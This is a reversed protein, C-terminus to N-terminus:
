YYTCCLVMVGEATPISFVFPSGWCGSFFHEFLLHPLGLYGTCYLIISSYPYLMSMEAWPLPSQAEAEGERERELARVEESTHHLLNCREGEKRGGWVSV